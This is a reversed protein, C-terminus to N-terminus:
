MPGPSAAIRYVVFRRAYSRGTEPVLNVTANVSVVPVLERHHGQHRTTGPRAGVGSAGVVRGNSVLSAM